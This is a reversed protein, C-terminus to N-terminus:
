IILVQQSGHRLSAQEAEIAGSPIDKRIAEICARLRGVPEWQSGGNRLFSVAATHRLTHPSCRVGALKAKHGYKTMMKQVGGRTLPRGAQTLFVSSCNATAPEPRCRNIYHWLIRQLQRGIPVMREKNGKGLVKAMGEELWLKEVKLSCVESVRFGTDLMSLFIAYDRYGIATRTNIAGLLQQVESASFAPIVKVPPRPIKVKDFPNSPMIGEAVLWNYFIRLSRLYCNITHGSLGRERTHILPHSAFCRAQQLHFIYARVERHTVDTLSLSGPQTKLFREFYHASQVVISVASASKGETASCLQYGAVLGKLDTPGTKTM